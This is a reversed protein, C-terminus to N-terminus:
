PLAAVHSGSALSNANDDDPAVLAFPEPCAKLRRAVAARDNVDVTIRGVAANFKRALVGSVNNREVHRPGKGRRPGAIDSCPTQELQIRRELVNLEDVPIALEFGGPEVRGCRKEVVM